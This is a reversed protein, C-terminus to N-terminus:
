YKTNPFLKRAIAEDSTPQNKTAGTVFSDNSFHKGAEIFLQVIAPHNGLGTDKLVQRIEDAKSGGFKDIFKATVALKTQYDSGLDKITQDKWGDVIKQYRQNDMETKKVMLGFLKGAEDQSLKLEKLIPNASELLDADLEMGEPAKFEYKEPVIKEAEKPVEPKQSLLSDVKEVPKAETSQPVEVKVEVAPTEVTAEVM